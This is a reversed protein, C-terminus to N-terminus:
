FLNQSMYFSSKHKSLFTLLTEKEDRSLKVNDLECKTNIMQFVSHYHMYEEQYHLQKNTVENVCRILFSDIQRSISIYKNHAANLFIVVNFKSANINSHQQTTNM